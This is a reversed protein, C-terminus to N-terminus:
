LTDDFDASSLELVVLEFTVERLESCNLKLAEEEPMGLGVLRRQQAKMRAQRQGATKRPRRMDKNRYFSEAM